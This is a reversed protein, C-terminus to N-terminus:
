EFGSRFLPTEPGALFADGDGHNFAPDSYDAIWRCALVSQGAQQDEYWYERVAHLIGMPEGNVWLYPHLNDATQDLPQTLKLTDFELEIQGAPNTPHGYVRVRAETDNCTSYIFDLFGAFEPDIYEGGAAAQDAVQLSFVAFLFAAAITKM